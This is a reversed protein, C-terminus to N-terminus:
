VHIGISGVLNCNLCKTYENSEKKKDYCAKHMIIKCRVCVCINTKDIAQEQCCFCNKQKSKKCCLM